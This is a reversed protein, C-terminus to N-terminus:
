PQKPPGRINLTLGNTISTRLLYSPDEVRIQWLQGEPELFRITVVKTKGKLWAAEYEPIVMDLIRTVHVEIRCDNSLRPLDVSFAALWNSAMELARNTNILSEQVAYRRYARPDNKKWFDPYKRILYALKGARPYSYVWNTTHFVGGMGIIRMVDPETVLCEVVHDQTIPIDEPLHLKLAVDNADCIMLALFASKLQAYSTVINTM